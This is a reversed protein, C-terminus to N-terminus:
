KSPLSKCYTKMWLGTQIPYCQGVTFSQTEIANYGVCVGMYRTIIFSEPACEFRIDYMVRMDQSSFPENYCKRWNLASGDTTNAPMMPQSAVANNCNADTYYTTWAPALCNNPGTCDRISKLDILPAVFLSRPPSMEPLRPSDKELIVFSQPRGAAVTQNVCKQIPNQVLSAPQSQCLSDGYWTRVNLTKAGSWETVEWLQTTQTGQVAFCKGGVKSVEAPYVSYRANETNPDCHDSDFVVRVPGYCPTM